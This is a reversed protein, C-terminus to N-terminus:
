YMGLDQNFSSVINESCTEEKLIEKESVNTFSETAKANKNSPFSVRMNEQKIDVIKNATKDKTKSDLSLRASLNKVNIEDFKNSDPISVISKENSPLMYTEKRVNDQVILNKKKQAM